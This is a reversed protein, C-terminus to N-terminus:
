TLYVRKRELVIGIILSVTLGIVNIGFSFPNYIVSFMIFMYLYILMFIKPLSFKFRLSISIYTSIAGVIYPIIYFGIHGFDSYIDRLYTFVNFPFPIKVYEYIYNIGDDNVLGLKELFRFVPTFLAKGKTVYPEATEIYENFATFSGTAYVYYSIIGDIM